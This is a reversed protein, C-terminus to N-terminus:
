FGEGRKTKVDYVGTLTPHLQGTADQWKAIVQELHEIYERIERAEDANHDQGYKSLYGDVRKKQRNNVPM